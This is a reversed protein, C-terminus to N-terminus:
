RRGIKSDGNRTMCGYDQMIGITCRNHVQEDINELEMSIYESQTVYILHGEDM